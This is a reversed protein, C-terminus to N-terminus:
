WMRAAERCRVPAFYTKLLSDDSVDTLKSPSWKPSQDKDILVARVGEYFDTGRSQTPLPLCSLTM